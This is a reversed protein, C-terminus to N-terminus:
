DDAITEGCIGCVGDDISPHSCYGCGNPFAPKTHALMGFGDFDTEEAGCRPCVMTPMSDDDITTM